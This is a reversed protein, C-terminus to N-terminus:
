KAKTIVQLEISLTNIWKIKGVFASSFPKLIEKYLWILNWCIEIPAAVMM